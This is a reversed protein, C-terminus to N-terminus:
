FIKEPILNGLLSHAGHALGPFALRNIALDGLHGLFMNDLLKEDAHPYIKKARDSAESEAVIEPIMSAAQLALNGIAFHTKHKPYFEGLFMAGLTGLLPLKYNNWMSGLTPAVSALTSESSRHGLEHALITPSSINKGIVIGGRSNRALAMMIRSLIDSKNGVNSGHPIYVANNFDNVLVTPIDLRKIAAMLEPSNAIRQIQPPLLM